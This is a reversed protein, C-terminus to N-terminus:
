RTESLPLSCALGRRSKIKSKGIHIPLCKQVQWGCTQWTRWCRHGCSQLQHQRKGTGPTGFGSPRSKKHPCQSPLLMVKPSPKPKPSGTRGLARQRQAPQQAHSLPPFSEHSSGPVGGGACSLYAPPPPQPWAPAFGIADPLQILADYHDVGNYLLHVTPLAENEKVSAHSEERVQCTGDPQRIHLQVRRGRLASYAVMAMEGGWNTMPDGRLRDAEQLWEETVAWDEMAMVNEMYDVVEVKLSEGCTGEHYALAHFLCNGDGEVKVVGMTTITRTAAMLDQRPPHTCAKETQFRM